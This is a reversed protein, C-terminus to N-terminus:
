LRRLRGALVEFLEITNRGEHLASEPVMLAFHETPDGRLYFSRGVAEIRGNVAIALDRKAGAAGGQLDGAVQAPVVGGARRVDAFLEAQAVSARV